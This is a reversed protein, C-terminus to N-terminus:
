LVRLFFSSSLATPSLKAYCKYINKSFKAFMTYMCVCLYLCVCTRTSFITSSQPQNTILFLVWLHFDFLFLRKKLLNTIHLTTFKILLYKKSTNTLIWKTHNTGIRNDNTSRQINFTCAKFLLCFLDLWWTLHTQTRYWCLYNQLSSGWPFRITLVTSKTM